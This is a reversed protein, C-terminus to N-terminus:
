CSTLGPCRCRIPIPWRPPLRSPPPPRLLAQPCPRLLPSRGRGARAGSIPRRRAAVARAKLATRRAVGYVWNALLDPTAISSVRRVLVLFTAQFADEADAAERLIRQCVSMVLGQHREMITAFASEDGAVFQALGVYKQSAKKEHPLKDAPPLYPIPERAAFLALLNPPLFQTM